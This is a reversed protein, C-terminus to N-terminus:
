FYRRFFVFGTIIAFWFIGKYFKKLEKVRQEAQNYNM